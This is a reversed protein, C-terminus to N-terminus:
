QRRWPLTKTANQKTHKCFIEFSKTISELFFARTGPVFRNAKASTGSEKMSGADNEPNKVM